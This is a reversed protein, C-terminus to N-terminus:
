SIKKRKCEQTDTVQSPLLKDEPINSMNAPWIGTKRFGSQIHELTMSHDWAHDFVEFFEPKSLARAHNQFNWEKLCREWNNKFQAFPTSDLAQVIHSCHPPIALVHINNEMMLKYFPLNYVHSKHGDIILLHPRDLLKHNKLYRVFREGYEKFKSKTIYGNTTAAVRYTVYAKKIWTDQVRKGKHIIMPPCVRGLANVFTLITSTEGKEGSVQQYAKKGKEGIVLYEKPITQVGTEDGSWIQEGSTIGFEDRVNKYERFWQAIVTPNACMARASSLNKAKKLVLDPHRKLFGYAWKYGARKKKDSFGEIGNVHAYQYALIRLKTMTIPFGCRQFKKIREALENEEEVLKTVFFNFQFLCQQFLRWYMNVSIQTYAHITGHM